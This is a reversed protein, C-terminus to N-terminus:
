VPGHVTVYLDMATFKHVASDSSLLAIANDQVNAIHGASHDSLNPDAGAIDRYIDTILKGRTVEYGSYLANGREALESGLQERLHKEFETQNWVASEEPYRSTV